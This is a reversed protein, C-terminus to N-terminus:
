MVASATSASPARQTAGVAAPEVTEVEAGLSEGVEAMIRVVGGAQATVHQGLEENIV